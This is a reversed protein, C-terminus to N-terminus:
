NQRTSNIYNTITNWRQGNAAALRTTTNNKFQFSLRNDRELINAIRDFSHRGLNCCENQRNTSIIKQNNTKFLSILLLIWSQLPVMGNSFIQDKSFYRFWTPQYKTKKTWQPINGFNMNLLFSWKIYPHSSNSHMRDRIWLCISQWM